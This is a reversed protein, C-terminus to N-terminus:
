QRTRGNPATDSGILATWGLPDVSIDDRHRRLANGVRPALARMQTSVSAM